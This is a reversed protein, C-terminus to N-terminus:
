ITGVETTVTTINNSTDSQIKSNASLELRRTDAIYENYSDQTDFTFTLKRKVNEDSNYACLSNNADFSQRVIRLKGTDEYTYKRYMNWTTNGSYWQSTNSTRTDITIIQYPM